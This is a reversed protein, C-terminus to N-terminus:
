VHDQATMFVVALWDVGYEVSMFTTLLLVNLKCWLFFLEDVVVGDLVLEIGDHVGM